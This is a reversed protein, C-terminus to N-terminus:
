ICKEAFLVDNQGNVSIPTFIGFFIGSLAGQGRRGSARPGAFASFDWFAGEGQSV